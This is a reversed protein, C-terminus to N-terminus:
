LPHDPHDLVHGVEGTRVARLVAELVADVDEAGASAGADGLCQGAPEPVVDRQETLHGEVGSQAGATVEAGGDDGGLRVRGCGALEGADGAREAASAAVERSELEPESRGAPESVGSRRMNPIPTGSNRTITTTARTTKPGSLSGAKARWAPRM